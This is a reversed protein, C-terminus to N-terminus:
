TEEVVRNRLTGIGTIEIEITDGPAMAVNGDSGMWLVDGPQMTIYRTIEMIYDVPTFIMDGTAFETATNGNVTVRTTSRMPDVETEIWPGMPKFTDCNKGRWFTRDAYQWERASVDNGITWGFIGAQAEERSCKKLTRGIVAVLEPEAEFRGSYDRPKVIAEDHGILANNARYGTEAREPFKAVPSGRKQAALIHARYHVVARFIPSPMVHPLWKLQSFSCSDATVRPQGIPSGEIRVIRDDEVKGFHTRGGASFRCWRVINM